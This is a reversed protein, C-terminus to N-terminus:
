RRVFFGGRGVVRDRRVGGETRVGVWHAPVRDIQEQVGERIQVYRDTLTRTLRLPAAHADAPTVPGSTATTSRTLPNTTTTTTTYSSPLPSAATSSTHSSAAPVRSFSFPSATSILALAHDPGYTARSLSAHILPLLTGDTPLASPQHLQRPDLPTGPTHPVTLAAPATVQRILPSSPSAPTAPQLFAMLLVTLGTGAPVPPQPEPVPITSMGEAYDSPTSLLTVVVINKQVVGVRAGAAPQIDVIARYWDKSLGKAAAAKPGVKVSAYGIHTGTYKRTVESSVSSLKMASGPWRLEPEQAVAMNDFEGQFRIPYPLTPGSDDGVLGSVSVAAPSTNTRLLGALREAERQDYVENLATVM